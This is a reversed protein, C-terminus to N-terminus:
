ISLWEEAPRLCLFLEEPEVAETSRANTFTEERM